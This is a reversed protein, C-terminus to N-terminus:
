ALDAEPLNRAPMGRPSLGRRWIKGLRCGLGAQGADGWPPNRAWAQPIGEGAPGGVM